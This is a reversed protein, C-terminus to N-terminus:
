RKATRIPHNKRVKDELNNIWEETHDLRSKVGKLINKMETIINKPESQNKTINESKKNFNESHGEVRRRLDTIMKIVLVKFKKDLLNSIEM